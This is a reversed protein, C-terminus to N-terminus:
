LHGQAYGARNLLEAKCKCHLVPPMGLILCLEDLLILRSLRMGAAGQNVM